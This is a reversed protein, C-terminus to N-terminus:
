CDEVASQLEVADFIGDILVFGQLEYEGVM